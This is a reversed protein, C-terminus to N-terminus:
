HLTFIHYFLLIPCISTDYDFDKFGNQPAAENETKFCPMWCNWVCFSCNKNTNQCNLLIKMETFKGVTLTQILANKTHGQVLLCISFNALAAPWDICCCGFCEAPTLLQPSSICMCVRMCARVCVCVCVCVNVTAPSDSNLASPLLSTNHGASGVSPDQHLSVIGAATVCLFPCLTILSRQLLPLFHLKNERKCTLDHLSNKLVHGLFWQTMTTAWCGQCGMCIYQLCNISFSFFWSIARIMITFCVSMLMHRNCKCMVTHSFSIHMHIWEYVYNLSMNGVCLCIRVCLCIAWSFMDDRVFAHQWAIFLVSACKCLLICFSESM